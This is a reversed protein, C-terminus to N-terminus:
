FTINSFKKFHTLQTHRTYQISVELHTRDQIDNFIIYNLKIVSLLGNLMVPLVEYVKQVITLIKLGSLLITLM